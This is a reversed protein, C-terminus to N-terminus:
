DRAVWGYFFFFFALLYSLFFCLIYILSHCDFIEMGEVPGFSIGADEIGPHACFSNLLKDYQCRNM